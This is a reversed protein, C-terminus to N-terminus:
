RRPPKRLTPPQTQPPSLSMELGWSTGFDAADAEPRAAAKRSPRAAWWPRLRRTLSPKPRDM